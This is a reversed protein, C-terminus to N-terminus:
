AQGTRSGGPVASPTKPLHHRTPIELQSPAAHPRPQAARLTLGTPGRRSRQTAPRPEGPQPAPLPAPRAGPAPPDPGAQARRANGTALPPRLLAPRTAAQPQPAQAAGQTGPPAPPIPLFLAKGLVRLLSATCLQRLQAESNAEEKRAATLTVYQM